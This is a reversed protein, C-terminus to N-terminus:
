DINYSAGSKVEPKKRPKHQEIKPKRPWQKDKRGKGKSM